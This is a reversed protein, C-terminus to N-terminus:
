IRELLEKKKSDFEEQSLIGKEKLKSLEEIQVSVVGNDDSLHENKKEDDEIEQHQSEQIVELKENCSICTEWSDVCTAGCKPCTKERLYKETLMKEKPDLKAYLEKGIVTDIGVLDESECKPCCKKRFFIMWLSYFLACTSLVWSSMNLFQDNYMVALVWDIISIIVIIIWIWWSGRSKEVPKSVFSGCNKCMQSRM